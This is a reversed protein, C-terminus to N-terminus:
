FGFDVVENEIKFFEKTFDIAAKEDFGKCTYIVVSLFKPKSWFYGSIGSDILPVFGDYGANEEKGMGSGPSFVIPDGYTRLGLHAALGLLYDKVQKERVEITWFAEILLRQRFVDPAINKTKINM